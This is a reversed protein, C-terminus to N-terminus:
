NKRYIYVKMKFFGTDVVEVPQWPATLPIENTIILGGAKMETLLKQSVKEIIAGNCYLVVAHISSCDYLWFDLKRFRLNKPGFIKQKTSSILWPLTSIEIGLVDVDPVERAIKDALQGNGSGLDIISRPKGDTNPTLYKILAEAMVRRSAPFSAVTPVGTRWNYIENVAVVVLIIVLIISTIM